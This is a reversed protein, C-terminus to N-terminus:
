LWDLLEAVGGIVADPHRCEPIDALGLRGSIGSAVLVTRAVSVASRTDMTVDDGVVLLEGGRGGVQEEITKLAARAERRSWRTWRNRPWRRAAAGDDGAPEDVSARAHAHHFDATDVLVRRDV